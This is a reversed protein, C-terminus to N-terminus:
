FIARYQKMEKREARVRELERCQETVTEGGKELGRRAEEKERHEQSSRKRNIRARSEDREPEAETLGERSLIINDVGSDKTSM